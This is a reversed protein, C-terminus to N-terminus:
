SLRNIQSQIADMQKKMEDAQDLGSSAQRHTLALGLTCYM